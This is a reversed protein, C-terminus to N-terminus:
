TIQIGRLRAPILVTFKTCGPVSYLELYGGHKDLIKRIIHLGLGSGEGAKKTTFFPEFIKKQIEIPIGPGSDEISISVFQEYTYKEIFESKREGLDPFPTQLSSLDPVPVLKIEINLSGRGEMAQISNHILNTFIQSLEDAFCYLSPMEDYHTHVEIGHKLKSHLITLVTELTEPLYAPQMEDSTDFHMYSKLSKVIKSVRDASLHVVSSKKLIGTFYLIINLVKERNSHLTLKEITDKSDFLGLDMITECFSDIDLEPINELEAKLSKKIARQEKSSLTKNKQLSEKVTNRILSWDKPNLETFISEMKELLDNTSFGINEGSAKIAGLPTNIEHAVGAVMTGLTIMKDAQVLQKQSVELELYAKTARQKQEQLVENQRQLEQSLEEVKQFARANEIFSAAGSGLVGLLAV